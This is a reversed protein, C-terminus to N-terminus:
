NLQAAQTTRRDDARSVTAELREGEKSTACGM